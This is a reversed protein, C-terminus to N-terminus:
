NGSEPELAGADVSGNTPTSADVLRESQADLSSTKKPPAPNSSGDRQRGADQPAWLPQLDAILEKEAQKLFASYEQASMLDLPDTVTPDEGRAHMEKIVKRRSQHLKRLHHHYTQIRARAESEPMDPLRDSWGTALPDLTKPDPLKGYREEDLQIEAVQDWVPKNDPVMWTNQSPQSYRQVLHYWSFGGAILLAVAAWTPFPKHTTTPM